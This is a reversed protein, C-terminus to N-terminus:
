HNPRCPRDLAHGIHHLRGGDRLQALFLGLKGALKGIQGGFVARPMGFDDIGLRLAAIDLALDTRFYVPDDAAELVIHRHRLGADPSQFVAQALNAALGAGAILRHDLQAFEFALRGGVPRDILTEEVAELFGALLLIELRRIGTHDRRCRWRSPRRM